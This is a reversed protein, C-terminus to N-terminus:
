FGFIRRPKSLFERALCYSNEVIALRPEVSLHSGEDFERQPVSRKCADDTPNQQDQEKVHSPVRDKDRDEHIESNDKKADKYEKRQALDPIIIAIPDQIERM